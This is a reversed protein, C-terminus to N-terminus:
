SYRKRSEYKNRADSCRRLNRHRRVIASQHLLILREVLENKSVIIDEPNYCDGRRADSIQLNASGTALSRQGDTRRARNRTGKDPLQKRKLGLQWRSARDFKTSRLRDIPIPWASRGTVPRVSVFRRATAREPALDLVSNRSRVCTMVLQMCRLLSSRCNAPTQNWTLM